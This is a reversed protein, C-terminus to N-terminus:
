NIMSQLADVSVLFRHIEEGNERGDRSFLRAKELDVRECTDGSQGEVFAEIMADAVGVAEPCRVTALRVSGGRADAAHLHRAAIAVGARRLGLKISYVRVTLSNLILKYSRAM